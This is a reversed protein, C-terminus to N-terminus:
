KKGSGRGAKGGKSGKGSKGGKGGKGGNGGKGGRKGARAQKSKSARLDKKMRPDVLKYSGKVGAPRTAKRGMTMGKKAVVYQVEKKQEKAKRYLKKIQRAKERDGMEGDAGGGALIAEAKKKARELRKQMRRKKRAKAEVVKKIPRADIETSAKKYQEVLEPPALSPRTLHKREDEVFWDPLNDDNFTYRSWAADILDRRAKKSNVMVTGLALAEENLKRKGIKGLFFNLM